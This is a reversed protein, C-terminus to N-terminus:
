RTRRYEYGKEIKESAESKKSKQMGKYKKHVKAQNKKTFKEFWSINNVPKIRTDQM